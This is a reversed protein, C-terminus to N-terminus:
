SLYNVNAKRSSRMQGMLTKRDLVVMEVLATSFSVNFTLRRRLEFSIGAASEASRITTAGLSGAAEGEVTLLIKAVNLPSSRLRVRCSM